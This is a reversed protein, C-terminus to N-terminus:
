WKGRKEVRKGKKKQKGSAEGKAGEKGAAITEENTENM